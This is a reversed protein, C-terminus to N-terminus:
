HVTKRIICTQLYYLTMSITLAVVIYGINIVGNLNYVNTTVEENFWVSHGAAFLLSSHQIVSLAFLIRKYKNSINHLTFILLSYVICIAMLLIFLRNIKNQLVLLGENNLTYKMGVKIYIQYYIIVLSSLITIVIGVHFYPSVKANNKKSKLFIFLNVFTYFIVAMLTYYFQIELIFNKNKILIMPVSILNVFISATIGTTLIFQQCSAQMGSFNLPMEPYQHQSLLNSYKTDYLCFICFSIFIFIMSVLQMIYFRTLSLYLTVAIVAFSIITGKLYNYDGMAYQRSFESKIAGM